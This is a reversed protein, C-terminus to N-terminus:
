TFDIGLHKAMDEQMKEETPRGDDSMSGEYEQQDMVEDELLHM